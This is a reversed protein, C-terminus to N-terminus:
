PRRDGYIVSLPLELACPRAIQGVVVDIVIAFLLWPQEFHWTLSRGSIEGDATALTRVLNEGPALLRLEFGTIDAWEGSALTVTIEVPGARLPFPLNRGISGTAGVPIPLATAGAAPFLGRSVRTDWHAVFLRDVRVTLAAVDPPRPSRRSNIWWVFCDDPRERGNAIRNVLVAPDDIRDELQLIQGDVVCSWIGTTDLVDFGALDLLEHMEDASIEITHGGHSWHLHETVIRNPSDIVLLGGDVLVRHSEVLFGVLEEAWLHETTQGAFVLEITSDPVDVMHDATNAIWTAYPPLDNPEEEFAELGIHEDVPGVNHEFWEFYWRGQAGVSLVRRAGKPVRRLQLTRLEHNINHFISSPLDAQEAAPPALDAPSQRNAGGAVPSGAARSAIQDVYPQAVRDVLSRLKRKITSSAM